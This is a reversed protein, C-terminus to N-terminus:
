PADAQRAARAAEQVERTATIATELIDRDSGQVRESLAQLAQEHRAGLAELQALAATREAPAAAMSRELAVAYAAQLERATNAPVRSGQQVHQTLEAVRQDAIAFAEAAHQPQGTWFRETARKWGYLPDDPGARTAAFTLGSVGVGVIGILLAAWAATRLFLPGFRGSVYQTTRQRRRAVVAQRLRERGAAKAEPPMRTEGLQRLAVAIGVMPRLHPHDRLVQESLQPDPHQICAELVDDPRHRGAHWGFMTM